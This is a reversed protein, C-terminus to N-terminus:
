NRLLVSCIIEFLQAENWEELTQLKMENWEVLPSGFMDKSTIDINIKSPIKIQHRLHMNLM